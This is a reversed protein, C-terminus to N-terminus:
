VPFNDCTKHGMSECVICKETLTDAVVDTTMQELTSGDEFVFKIGTSFDSSREAKELYQIEKVIRM